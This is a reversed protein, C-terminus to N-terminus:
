PKDLGWVKRALSTLLEQRKSITESNWDEFAFLIEVASNLQTNEGVRPVEVLSKTLLFSSQKYGAKKAEFSQNSVSTNITRELLTLNGLRQAQEHYAGESEFLTRLDDTPTQPLIHEIHISNSVYMELSHHAQNGWASKEIYQTLKALIYKLRYQQINWMGLEQFAFDFRSSRSSIEPRLNQDLFIELEARTSVKRLETSWAGFKSEFTKTSERTVVYVFFLNEINEAVVTFLEPDLEEAALLLVFHQRASGSMLSINRLFTNPNGNPDKSNVFNAYARAKQVLKIVFPIPAEDIGVKRSNETFWSFIQDERLPKQADTEFHSMIYYRLFRLPKEGCGDITDVLEKWYTKLKPYDTTSTRMFLLNKLLDMANLGVGRDNITEFVKLAHALNPTIIRILKVRQTFAAFFQKLSPVDGAFSVKLFERITEYAQLINKMSLTATTGLNEPISSSAIQELIQHSDEYQLTLRYREIDVGFQNSSVSHIMGNLSISSDGRYTIEDRLACLVLYTTTLRQQGDILQFTGHTDKCAVISGIFYESVGSPNGKEDYFEEYIDNLLKEVNEPQWVYERQFDPVTYFDKYVVDLSM